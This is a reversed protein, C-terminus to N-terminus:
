TLTDDRFPSGHCVAPHQAELAPLCSLAPGDKGSAGLWWFDLVTLGLLRRFWTYLHTHIYTHICTHIYTHIYICIYIYIFMLRYTYVVHTHIHRYLTYEFSARCPNTVSPPTAPGRSLVPYQGMWEFIKIFLHM